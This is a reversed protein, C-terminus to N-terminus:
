NCRIQVELLRLRVCTWFPSRSLTFSFFELDSFLVNTHDDPSSLFGLQPTFADINTIHSSLATAHSSLSVM